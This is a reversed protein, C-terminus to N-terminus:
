RSKGLKRRRLVVDDYDPSPAEAKALNIAKASGEESIEKAIAKIRQAQQAKKKVQAERKVLREAEKRRKVKNRETPTKREPRRKKLWKEGEYESEIGEWASEDETQWDESEKQAQEIKDLRQQELEAERLRHREADVEKEGEEVLLKDYDEFVPNYSTGAKPKPVAPFCSTGEVLSIPAEKLTM